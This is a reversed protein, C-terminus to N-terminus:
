KGLMGDMSLDTTSAPRGSDGVKGGAVMQLHFSYEVTLRFCLVSFCAGGNYKLFDDDYIM